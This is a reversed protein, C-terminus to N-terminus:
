IPCTDATFAPADPWEPDANSCAITRVGDRGDCDHDTGDGESENLSCPYIAPDDPACDADDPWDDGDRDSSAGCDADCGDGRIDGAFPHIQPDDPACDEDIGWGDGDQDWAADFDDESVWPCATLLALTAIALLSFPTRM